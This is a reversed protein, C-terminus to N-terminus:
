KMSSSKTKDMDDRSSNQNTNELDEDSEQESDSLMANLVLTSGKKGPFLKQQRLTSTGGIEKTASSKPLPSKSLFPSKEKNNPPLPTTSKFKNLIDLINNSNINAEAVGASERKRKKSTKETEDISSQPKQDTKEGNASCFSGSSTKSSIVVPSTADKQSNISIIAAKVKAEKDELNLIDALEKVREELNTTNRFPSNSKTRILENNEALKKSLEDMHKVINKENLSITTLNPLITKLKKNDDKLTPTNLNTTSKATKLSKSLNTKLNTNEVKQNNTINTLSAGFSTNSETTVDTTQQTKKLSKAAVDFFDAITSKTRILQKATSTSSNLENSNSAKKIPTESKLTTKDALEQSIDNSVSEERTSNVSERKM